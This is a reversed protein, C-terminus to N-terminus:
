VAPTYAPPSPAKLDLSARRHEVVDEDFVTCQPYLRPGNEGREDRLAQSEANRDQDRQDVGILQGEAAQQSASQQERRWWRGRRNTGNLHLGFCRQRGFAEFSDQTLRVDDRFLHRNKIVRQSSSGPRRQQNLFPTADLPFGGLAERIANEADGLLKSREFAQRWWGPYADASENLGGPQNMPDRRIVRGFRALFPDSPANHHFRDDTNLPRM